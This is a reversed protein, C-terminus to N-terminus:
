AGLKETDDTTVGTDEGAGKRPVGVGAQERKRRAISRLKRAISQAEQPVVVDGARRALEDLENAEDVARTRLSEIMANFPGEVERLNDGGRLTLRTGLQGQRIEDLRRVLAFAAGSTRHTEIITL